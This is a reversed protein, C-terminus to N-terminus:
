SRHPFGTVLNTTTRDEDSPAEGRELPYDPLQDPPCADYMRFILSRWYPRDNEELVQKRFTQAFSPDRALWSRVAARACPPYWRQDYGPGLRIGGDEVLLCLGSWHQQM